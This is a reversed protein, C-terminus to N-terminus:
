VEPYQIRVRFSNVIGISPLWIRDNLAIPPDLFHFETPQRQADYCLNLLISPGNIQVGSIVDDEIGITEGLCHVFRFLCISEVSHDLVNQVVNM